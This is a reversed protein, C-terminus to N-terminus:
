SVTRACEPWEPACPIGFRFGHARVCRTQGHCGGALYGSRCQGGVALFRYQFARAGIMSSRRASGRMATRTVGSIASIMASRRKRPLRVDRNQLRPPQGRLRLLPSLRSRARIATLSLDLPCGGIDLCTYGLQNLAPERRRRFRTGVGGRYFVLRGLLEFM